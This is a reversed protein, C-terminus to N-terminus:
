RKVMRFYNSIHPGQTGGLEITKIEVIEFHPEFLERLGVLSSLYLTTDLRSRRQRGSGEFHSDAENFCVSLYKGGPELIQHVSEVYEKRADPHIHHMVQWELAFGFPGLGGLGYLLDAALFNCVMGKRAANVKALDIATPSGDVGTVDFGRSALYISYNGAGCGLDITRCPEIWSSEFLDVLPGPPVEHNWPIDELPLTSYIEELRDDVM